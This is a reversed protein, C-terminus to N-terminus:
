AYRYFALKYEICSNSNYWRYDLINNGIVSGLLSTNATYPLKLLKRGAVNWTKCYNDFGKTKFKWLHSGYASCCNTKFLNM